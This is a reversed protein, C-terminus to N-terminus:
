SSTAQAKAKAQNFVAEIETVVDQPTLQAKLLYGNAGIKFAEKIVDEQGLNTILFIPTSKVKSQPSRFARLVDIGTVRPLMIDLLIIDYTKDKVKNLAEQGDSAVDVIYGAQTFSKNYIDRIYFDDEIILINRM